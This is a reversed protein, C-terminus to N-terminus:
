SRANRAKHKGRSTHPKPVPQPEAPPAAEAFRRRALDSLARREVPTLKLLIQAVRAPQHAPGRKGLTFTYYRALATQDAKSLSTFVALGPDDPDDAPTAGQAPPASATLASSAPATKANSAPIMRDESAPPFPLVNGAKM